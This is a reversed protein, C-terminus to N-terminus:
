GWRRVPGTDIHLFNSEPYFGVGGARMDLAADRLRALPVGAMRLDLARGLVHQSRSAVGGGGRRRLRDNTAASRYGSIVEIAGDSQLTQQLRCIQDFLEPDMRAQEGSYHDRLFRNLAALSEPPWDLAPGNAVQLTEGTHLHRMRLLVYKSSGRQPLPALPAAQTRLPRLTAAGGVVLATGRLLLRRAHKVEPKMSLDMKGKSNGVCAQRDICLLQAASVLAM